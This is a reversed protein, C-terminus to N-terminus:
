RSSASLVKLINLLQFIKTNGLVELWQIKIILEQFMNTQHKIPSMETECGNKRKIERKHKVDEMSGKEMDTPNTM